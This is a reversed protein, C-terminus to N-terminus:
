ALESSASTSNQSEIMRTMTRRATVLATNYHAYMRVGCHSCSFVPEMEQWTRGCHSCIWYKSGEPDSMATLTHRQGGLQCHFCTTVRLDRVRSEEFRHGCTGCDRVPSIGPIVDPVLTGSQAAKLEVVEIIRQRPVAFRARNIAASVDVSASKWSTDEVGIYAHYSQKQSQRVIAHALEYVYNDSTKGRRTNPGVHAPLLIEGVELAQGNFSMVAYYYRGQDEHVGMIADPLMNCTPVSVPIPLFVYWEQWGQEDQEIGITATTLVAPPACTPSHKGTKAFECKEACRLPAKRQRDLLDRLFEGQYKDGFEVPFFVLTSNEPQVFSFGPFNTFEPPQEAKNNSKGSKAKEAERGFQVRHRLEEYEEAEECILNCAFVFRYREQGQHQQRHHILAFSNPEYNAYMTRQFYIPQLDARYIRAAAAEFEQAALREIDFLHEASYIALPDGHSPRFDHFWKANQAYQQTREEYSLGVDVRAEFPLAKIQSETFLPRQVYPFSPPAKEVFRRIDNGIADFQAKYRRQERLQDRVRLLQTRRLKGLRIPQKSARQRQNSPRVAGVRQTVRRVWYPHPYRRAQEVRQPPYLDPYILVDLEALTAQLQEDTLFWRLIRRAGRKGVYGPGLVSIPRPRARERRRKRSSTRDKLPDGLRKGADPGAPVERAAAAAYVAEERMWLWYIDGLYSVRWSRFLKAASISGKKAQSKSTQLPARNQPIEIGRADLDDLVLQAWGVIGEACDNFVGKRLVGSVPYKYISCISSYCASLIDSLMQAGDGIGRIRKEALNAALFVDTMPPATAELFRCLLIAYRRRGVLNKIDKEIDKDSSAKIAVWADLQGRLWLFAEHYRQDVSAEGVLAAIIHSILLQQENAENTTSIGQSKTRRAITRHLEILAQSLAVLQQESKEETSLARASADVITRCLMMSANGASRRTASKLLRVQEDPDSTCGEIQEALRVISLTAARSEVREQMRKRLLLSYRIIRLQEVTYRPEVVNSEVGNVTTKRKREANTAKELIENIRNENQQSYWGELYTAVWYLGPQQVETADAFANAVATALGVSTGQAKVTSLETFLKDIIHEAPREQGVLGRAIGVIEAILREDTAGEALRQLDDQLLTLIDAKMCTIRTHAKRLLEIKEKSVRLKMSMTLTVTEPQDRQLKELAAAILNPENIPWNHITMQRMLYHLTTM